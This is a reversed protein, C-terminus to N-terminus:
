FLNRYGPLYTRITTAPDSSAVTGLGKLLIQLYVNNNYEPSISNPSLSKFARGGLLRMAWCCSDYQLGLFSLMNYGESINYTYAGLTSWKESLPLPWAYAVTAQHLPKNNIVQNDVQLLNGSTLYSYGMNVIHNVAPQYHFNINGNNTARTYPDWIYDGTAVWAPNLHYTLRSAIPSTVALPSVYGLFFSSDVCNGEKQYCLQVRRADFYHTQGVSFSLKEKGNVNSLWRSTLAYSMQNADGIRDFGSFRNLRFLQNINFIMYASDYVPIPTQDRFPVYLYYLRPELTQTYAHRAFHASREFFLGTDINYRPITRNFQTSPSGGIYSVDYYNEVLQVMPTFYGWTQLLPLSVAPDAHYRGGQPQMFTDAPWRYNDYESIMTFNLNLPLDDYSAQAVLQPLREYIDSITSQNIPHLTQYHQLIGAFLWHDTTYTLDGEQLLQSQTLIALNSSFDQLYYDDSVKQYNINLHMNPVFTTNERMLVSWRNNSVHQLSPFATENANLFSGFAKDHPLIHAGMLGRSHRTLFRFEGGMMLGRLTYLHPKLTADYNPAINWYYPTTIDSGGINSYGYIPMLFGSKREKSTPFSLYPTYLVPWNGLRLTANKAVGRQKEHDLTIEKAEIQWAKDQPACTTYTAKQFLFNQNAFREVLKARGWAPLMANAYNIQLRYLVDEVHGSKDQPYLVVKKAILLREPEKYRVDGLLVVKSVQHTKTDRYIYATDASVIQSGQKVEVNGKLESPGETYLSATAANIQIQKEDPLPSIQLPEYDGHCLPINPNIRWGLCQAIRDRIPATLLMDRPIVCAKVPIAITEAQLAPGFVIFLLCLLWRNYYKINLICM